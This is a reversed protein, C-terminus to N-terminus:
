AEVELPLPEKARRLNGLVESVLMGGLILASGVWGAAALREGLLLFGFFGAFVPETILILAVRTPSIYRLAYTQIAFAGASAFVGTVALALWVSAEPPLALPREMVIAVIGCAVAAFALQVMTLVDVPHRSSVAGLAIWHCAFCFAGALVLTDAYTWGGTGGDWSLLWLGGTALAVGAIAYAHPMRRLVLVQLIPTLVVAMGTIFGTRTAGTGMLGLTQLVYGGTIFLGAPLGALVASRSWRRVIGPFIAFLAVCAIAFRLTLFSFPPYLAVADKVMVFTLGWVAAVGVLALDVSYRAVRHRV